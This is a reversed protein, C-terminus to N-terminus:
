QAAIPIEYNDGPDSTFGCVSATTEWVLKIGEDCNHLPISESLGTADRMASRVSEDLVADRRKLAITVIRGVASNM